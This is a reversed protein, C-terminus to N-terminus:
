VAHWTAREDAEALCRMRLEVESRREDSNAVSMLWSTMYLERLRRMASWGSWHLLDFGYAAAFADISDVDRHFRLSAVATPVLDWERPGRAVADLDILLDSGDKAALLNGVHADGHIMGCPLQWVTERTAERSERTWSRLLDLQCADPWSGPEEELRHLRLEIEESPNWRPFETAAPYRDLLEHLRRLLGGLEGVDVQRRPDESIWEWFSATAGDLGEHLVRLGETPRNVPFENAALWDALRVQRAVEQPATGPRRLRLAVDAGVVQYVANTGFRVLVM